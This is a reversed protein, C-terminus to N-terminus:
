PGCGRGVTRSHGHSGPALRRLQGFRVQGAQVRKALALVLHHGGDFRLDSGGAPTVYVSYTHATVNVVLRFHYSVGASYKITSAGYATGNYADIDGSPNFRAICGLNGFGTAAGNSLGVM